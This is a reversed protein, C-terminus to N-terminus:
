PRVTITFGYSSGYDCTECGENSFRDDDNINDTEFYEALVKLKAFSLSPPDYMSSVTITVRDKSLGIDINLYPSNEIDWVEEVKARIAAESRKKM